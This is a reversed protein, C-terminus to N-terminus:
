LVHRIRFMRQSRAVCYDDDVNLDIETWATCQWDFVTIGDHRHQVSPNGSRCVDSDRNKRRAIPMRTMMQAEFFGASCPGNVAKLVTTTRAKM